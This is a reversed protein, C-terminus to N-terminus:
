IERKNKKTMNRVFKNSVILSDDLVKKIMYIQSLFLNSTLYKTGLIINTEENVFDLVGCVNDINSKEDKTLCSHYTVERESYSTFADILKLAVTLM